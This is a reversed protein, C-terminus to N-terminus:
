IGSPQPEESIRADSMATRETSSECGGSGFDSVPSMDSHYIQGSDSYEGAGDLSITEQAIRKVGGPASM